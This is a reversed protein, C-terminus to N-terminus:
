AAVATRAEAEAIEALQAACMSWGQEFGMDRHKKVAEPDWHRVRATYRTGSGEQDFTIIAVM